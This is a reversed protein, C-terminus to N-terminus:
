SATTQLQSLFSSVTDAPICISRLPGSSRSQICTRSVSLRQKTEFGSPRHRFISQPLPAKNPPLAAQSPCCWASAKWGNRGHAQTSRLRLERCMAAPQVCTVPCPAASSFSGGATSWATKWGAMWGDKVSQRRRAEQREELGSWTVRESGRLTPANSGASELLAEM